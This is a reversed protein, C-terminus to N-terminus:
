ATAFETEVRARPFREIPLKIPKDAEDITLLENFDTINFYTMLALIHDAELRGAKGLNMKSIARNGIGTDRAIDEYTLREGTKLQYELKFKDIEFRLKM